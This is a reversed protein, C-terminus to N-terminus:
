LPCTWPVASGRDPAAAAIRIRIWVMDCALPRRRAAEEKKARCQTGPPPSRHNAPNKAWQRCSRYQPRIHGVQRAGLEVRGVELNTFTTLGVKLKAASLSRCSAAAHPAEVPNVPLQGVGWHRQPAPGARVDMKAAPAARGTPRAAGPLTSQRDEPTGPIRQSGRLATNNSRRKPKPEQVTVGNVKDVGLSAKHQLRAFAKRRNGTRRPRAHFLCVSRPATRARM